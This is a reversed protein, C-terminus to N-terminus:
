KKAVDRASSWIFIIHTSRYSNCRCQVSLPDRRPRLPLAIGGRRHESFDAGSFYYAPWYIAAEEVVFITWTAAGWQITAFNMLELTSM